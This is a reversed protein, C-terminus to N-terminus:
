RKLGDSSGLRMFTAARNDVRRHKTAVCPAKRRAVGHGAAGRTPLRRRVDCGPGRSHNLPVQSGWLSLNAQATSWDECVVFDATPIRHRRMFQKASIKSGELRAAAQNPGALPLGRAFFEDGIGAVLAAEPGAVTLDAGLDAAMQALERPGKRDTPPCIAERAIGGNGPVCFVEKVEPSQRLKWVLAHERGGAGIVLVRM